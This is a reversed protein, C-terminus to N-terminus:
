CSKSGQLELQPIERCEHPAFPRGAQPSCDNHATKSLSCSVLLGKAQLSCGPSDASSAPPFAEALVPAEACTPGGAAQRGPSGARAHM